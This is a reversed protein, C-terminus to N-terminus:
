VGEGSRVKEFAEEIFLKQTLSMNDEEDLEMLNHYDLFEQWLGKNDLKEYIKHFKFLKKTINM